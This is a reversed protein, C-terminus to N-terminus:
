VSITLNAPIKRFRSRPMGYVQLCQVAIPASHVRATCIGVAHPLITYIYMYQHDKHFFRTSHEITRMHEFLDFRSSRSSCSSVM